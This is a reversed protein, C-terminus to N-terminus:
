KPESQSVKYQFLYEHSKSYLSYSYVAGFENILVKSIPSSCVLNTNSQIMTKKASLLLSDSIDSKNLNILRNNFNIQNSSVTVAFVETESDIKQPFSKTAEDAINKLVNEVGGSTSVYKRVKDSTINAYASIQMFLLIIFSTIKISM